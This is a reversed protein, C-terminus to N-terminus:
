HNMYLFYQPRPLVLVVAEYPGETWETMNYSKVLTDTTINM